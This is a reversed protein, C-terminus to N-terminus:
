PKHIVNVRGGTVFVLVGRPGAWPAPEGPLKRVVRRANVDYITYEAPGPPGRKIGEGPTVVRPPLRRGFLLYDGQDFVWGAPQGLTRSVPLPVRRNTATEYLRTSDGVEGHLYYTGSPSFAIGKHETAVASGGSLAARFVIGRTSRMYIASDFPAWVIQYPPPVGSIETSKGALPSRVFAGRAHFGVGDESYRGTIYAACDDGCWTFVRVDDEITAVVAGSRDLVVLRNSFNPQPGEPVRTMEILALRSAGPSISLGYAGDATSRYVVRETGSAPDMVVVRREEDIRALIPDPTQVDQLQALGAVTVAVVCIAIAALVIRYPRSM